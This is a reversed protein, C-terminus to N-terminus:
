LLAWLLQEFSNKIKAYVYCFRSCEGKLLYRIFMSM